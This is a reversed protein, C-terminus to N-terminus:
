STAPLPGRSVVAVARWGGDPRARVDYGVRPGAVCRLRSRGAARFFPSSGSRSCRCVRAARPARSTCTASSRRAFPRFYWSRVCGGPIVRWVRRQVCCVLGCFHGACAFFRARSQDAAWRRDRRGGGAWRGCSCRLLCRVPEVRPGTVGPGTTQWYSYARVLVRGRMRAVVRWWWRRQKGSLSSELIVDLQRRTELPGTICSDRKGRKPPSAARLRSIRTATHFRSGPQTSSTM